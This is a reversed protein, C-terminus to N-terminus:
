KVLTVKVKINDSEPLNIYAEHENFDTWDEGNIKVKELKLTQDEIPSPYLKENKGSSAIHFYLEVPKQNVWLDLYLFTLLEYEMSHYSTKYKTAKKTDKPKGDAYVSLYTDGYKKDIMYKNWFQAGKEFIDLYKHDNTIRYQFLSFMNGYAQIWWYISEGHISPDVRGTAHLWAGTEPKYGWKFIKETIVNTSDIYENKGTLLSLRYFMWVAEINHGINIETEFNNKRQEYKWEQDLGELIWKSEPDQMKALAINMVREAQELYYEDRTALYLYLLYGSVPVVEASFTKGSSNVSLDQNLINFYGGNQMDWRKSEILENSKEIYELVRNDHTVFYYMALGTNAYYQIFSSKTTELPNGKEDILDFWGGYVSDWAHELLFDVTEEAIDLYKDEGSLLFAVSYSFIHRAIMSPYKGRAGSQNWASDLNTIFAGNEHDIAHQTWYPMIEELAQEKWFDGSFINESEQKKLDSCATLYIFLSVILFICKKCKPFVTKM